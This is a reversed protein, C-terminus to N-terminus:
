QKICPRLSMKKSLYFTSACDVEQREDSPLAWCSGRCRLCIHPTPTATPKQTPRSKMLDSYRLRPHVRLLPRTSLGRTSPNRSPTQLAEMVTSSTMRASRAVPHDLVCRIFFALLCLIDLVFSALHSCRIGLYIFQWCREVTVCKTSKWTNTLALHSYELIFAIEGTYLSVGFMCLFSHAVSTALM